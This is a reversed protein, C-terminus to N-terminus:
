HNNDIGTKTDTLIRSSFSKVEYSNSKSSDFEAFVSSIIFNIRIINKM